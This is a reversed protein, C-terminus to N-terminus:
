QRGGYYDPFQKKRREYEEDDRRSRELQEMIDPPIEGMADPGAIAGLGQSGEPQEQQKRIADVIAPNSEFGEMSMGEAEPPLPTPAAGIPGGGGGGNTADPGIAGALSPEPLRTMEDPSSQLDKRNRPPQDGEKLMRMLEEYNAPRPVPNM